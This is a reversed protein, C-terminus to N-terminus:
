GKVSVFIPNSYFWLDSWPNEDKADAEPEGQLTNSGRVRLYLNSAVDKVVFRMTHLGKKYHWDRATFRHLVKTTPNTMMTPDSTRGMVRGGILDIHDLLPRQGVANPLGPQRVRITVTLDGHARVPLVEGMAAKARGSSVTVDLASILDGTTVFIRGQRLGDIIDGADRRAYVYTKAYQGPWFDEGGDATNHHSDSNATIWFHRGEGLMSDWVGGLQATMVDFGGFTPLNRYLGRGRIPKEPTGQRLGAAQHGPAGEMGVVVDPATDNWGRMEAPAHGGQSDGVVKSGRSPHNAFVLPKSVIGDMARLADLMLAGRDRAPDHPYVDNAAYTSELRLLREREDPTIPLILSAHDGGPTDLEMGYFQIVDPVIQRSRQLAPYSREYHLRSLNPGGHDTAAMWTLGYKRAMEANRVIPYIGDTGIAYSAIDGVRAADPYGGSFESHVHHDGALWSRGGGGFASSITVAFGLASALMFRQM